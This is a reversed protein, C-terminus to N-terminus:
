CFLFAAGCCGCASAAPSPAPSRERRRAASGCAAARQGADGPCRPRPPGFVDAGVERLGASPSSTRGRPQRAVTASM